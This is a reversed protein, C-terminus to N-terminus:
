HKISRLVKWLLLCHGLPPELNQPALTGAQPSWKLVATEICLVRVHFGHSQFNQSAKISQRHLLQTRTRLIDGNELKRTNRNNKVSFNFFVAPLGLAHWELNPTGPELGSTNKWLLHNLTVNFWHTRFDYKYTYTILIGTQHSDEPHWRSLNLRFHTVLKKVAKQPCWVERILFSLFFCLCCSESNVEFTIEIQMLFGIQVIRSKSMPRWHSEPKQKSCDATSKNRSSNAICLM